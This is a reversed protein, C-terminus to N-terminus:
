RAPTSGDQPRGGHLVVHDQALKGTLWVQTMDGRRQRKAAHALRVRCNPLPLSVSKSSSSSNSACSLTWGPVEEIMRNLRRLWPYGDGSAALRGDPRLPKQRPFKGRLASATQQSHLCDEPFIPGVWLAGANDCGSWEFGNGAAGGPTRVGRLVDRDQGASLADPAVSSARRRLRGAAGPVGVDGARRRGRPKSVELLGPLYGLVSHFSRACM